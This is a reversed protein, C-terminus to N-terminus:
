DELLRVEYPELTLPVGDLRVAVKADRKNILLTKTRSALVEVDPSSSRAKFLQTGPGFDTNFIKVVRYHPSPRGGESTKTSTFLYNWKQLEADWLLAVAVGSRLAHLYCSAHNAATFDPDGSWGGYFESIWIPLQTRARFQEAIKGFYATLTMKNAEEGRARSPPYGAVWGDFNVFDAGHKHQFWYDIVPWDKPKPGDFPYYPGGLQAESRVGKIADYVRNYFDTYRAFNWNDSAKDWYGKYENWIQFYKVDPYRLVVKRCLDAFDGVHNDAVRDDAWSDPGTQHPFDEGSTKMWGPATCLTIVMTAGMSRMLAVRRDLSAWNYVGPKPEPNETGWDM